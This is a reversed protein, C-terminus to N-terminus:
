EFSKKIFTETTLRKYGARQFLKQSAVNAELVTAHLNLDSFLDSACALAASAFGRRNYESAILISVLYNSNSQRDLRLVGVKHASSVDSIIFMFDVGSNLKNLM